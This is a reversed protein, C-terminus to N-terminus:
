NDGSMAPLKHQPSVNELSYSRSLCMTTATTATTTTTTTTTTRTTRTTTTPGNPDDTTQQRHDAAERSM